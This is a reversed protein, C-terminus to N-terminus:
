SGATLTSWGEPSPQNYWVTNWVEFKQQLAVQVGSFPLYTRSMVWQPPKLKDTKWAERLPSKGSVDAYTPSCDDLVPDYDACSLVLMMTQAAASTPTWTMESVVEAAGPEVTFNYRWRNPQIDNPVPGHQSLNVGQDHLSYYAATYPYSCPSVWVASGLACELFGTFPHTRYYAVEPIIIPDLKVEVVKEEGAKAEVSQASPAFGLKAVDLTYTGPDVNQFRFNGMGDTKTVLSTGRLGVDAGELPRLEADLVQGRVIAKDPSASPETTSAPKGDGGVCGALVISLGALVAILRLTVRPVM